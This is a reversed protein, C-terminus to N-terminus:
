RVRIEAHDGGDIPPESRQLAARARDALVIAGKRTYLELAERAAAAAEAPRGRLALIDALALLADGRETLADSPEVLAVAERALAEAQEHAGRRALVQARVGRWIAQTLVDEPAASREAVETQSAADRDHGQALLAQALMAATTALLAQEGAAELREVDAQLRAAAAVPDGALMEVQADYHSISSHLRGLEDLIANAEAILRRAEAAEGTMARLVALPRRTVARAVPSHGMEDGIRECAPIAETVPMPGFAAASTCWGLIERLEREDGAARAHEAAQRWAADADALRSETWAIWAQLRWARCRGLDDTLNALAEDAAHHAPGTGAAPDAHLGVLELEVRARLGAQPDAAARARGMAEDLVREADALRGADFLAAGLARLLEGDGPLLEAARELLAAGAAAEGRRLRARGAGALRHAAAAALEGDIPLELAARYGCAQELHYGVVEDEAEPHELLWAALREHLDARRRKPLGGYAVDRILAHAFRFADEGPYVPREPQILESRALATLAPALTDAGILAAVAGRHFGRGEVSAHELLTRHQADLAELRAALVAEITPPLREGGIAVLQELFLPNGEARAVIRRAADPEAGLTAALALADDDALADLGLVASSRQPAAWAPRAALLEPRGLCVLLIPADSSFGVIYEVLDLLAPDAWHVDDIIVVLPRERAAAEFVRRVAWQTEESHTAHDILRDVQEDGSRPLQEALEALPRLAIDEGYSPCRARVVTARERLEAIAEAVLRSKGIGAVGVVALLRAAREREARDLAGAIQALEPARGVFATDRPRAEVLGRTREGVRVEGAAAQVALDAAAGIAEGTAFRERRAGAGVFVEGSDVGVRLGAAGLEEAARVARLADDEHLEDLGFVGVLRAGMFGDVSGGHREIVDAHHDLQAHLSEPDLAGAIEAVVVSVLRRPRGAQPERVAPKPARQVAAPADLEPSQELMLQELRRLEEGPELGLEDALFARTDRYLALADAQRGCRYLALMLHGRLRERLPHAAVLQQLEAVLEADRGLALDAEVRRELVALRLEGLREAENAALGEFEIGQLPEGRWLALAERYREAAAAPDGAMRAQADAALREFAEADLRQPALVYGNSRTVIADAGLTRRLRSVYGQIQKLASATPVEGWLEHMLRTPSVIEGAHLLLVALLTQQKTAGLELARGDSVVELPGLIRFEMM